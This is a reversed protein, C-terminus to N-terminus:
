KKKNCRRRKPPRLHLPVHRLLLFHRLPAVGELAAVEGEVEGVEEEVLVARLLALIRQAEM